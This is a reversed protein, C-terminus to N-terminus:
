ARTLLGRAFLLGALALACGALALSGLFVGAWAPFHTLQLILVGEALLRAGAPTGLGRAGILLLAAMGAAFGSLALDIWPLAFRGARAPARRAPLAAMVRGALAPPAEALPYTRLADEVLAEARREPDAPLSM